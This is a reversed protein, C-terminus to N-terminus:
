KLFGVLATQLSDTPPNQILLAFPEEKLLYDHTTLKWYLIGELNINNSKVVERLAKVALYREELCIKEEKWIVLKENWFWGLVTVGTGNWSEVTSNPYYTYGLETFLLPKEKLGRHEKFKNIKNFIKKWEKRFTAVLHSKSPLKSTPERLPFYANIGIFDLKDWFDVEQYNDYNAAYSLKGKYVNRVKQILQLWQNKILERRRNIKHLWEGKDGFTVAQAWNYQANIKEKIYDELGTPSNKKYEFGLVQSDISDLQEKYKLLRNERIKMMVPSNYYDYLPPMSQIPVTSALANMESGIILVDVGEDKCIKAWQLNFETYKHFWSVLMSDNQPMLMGHWLFANEEFWHQLQVRLIVIVKMGKKKAMRIENIQGEYTKDFQIDDTNWLWQKGYATVEVTNMGTQLLTNTWDNLDAENVHVGGLYFMQNQNPKEKLYQLDSNKNFLFYGASGFVLICSLYILRNM